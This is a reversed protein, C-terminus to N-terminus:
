SKKLVNPFVSTNWKENSFIQPLQAMEPSAHARLHFEGFWVVVVVVVVVLVVSIVAVAVIAEKALVTAAEVVAAAPLADSYDVVNCLPTVLPTESRGILM